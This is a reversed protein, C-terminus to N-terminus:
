NFQMGTLQLGFQEEAFAVLLDFSVLIGNSVLINFLMPSIM